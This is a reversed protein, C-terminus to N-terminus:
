LAEQHCAVDCFLVDSQREVTNEAEAEGEEETDSKIVVEACTM